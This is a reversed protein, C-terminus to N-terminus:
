LADQSLLYIFFFHSEAQLRTGKTDTGELSFEVLYIISLYASPLYPLM